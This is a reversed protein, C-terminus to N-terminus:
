IHNVATVAHAQNNNAQNAERVFCDTFIAAIKSCVFVDNSVISPPFSSAFTRAAHSTVSNSLNEARDGKSNGSTACCVFCIIAYPIAMFSTTGTIFVTPSIDASRPVSLNGLNVYAIPCILAFPLSKPDSYLCSASAPRGTPSINVFCVPIAFM